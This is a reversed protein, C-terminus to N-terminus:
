RKWTQRAAKLIVLDADMQEGNFHVISSDDQRYVVSREFTEVSVIRGVSVPVLLEWGDDVQHWGRYIADFLAPDAVGKEVFRERM